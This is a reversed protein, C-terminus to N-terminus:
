FNQCTPGLLPLPLALFCPLNPSKESRALRTLPLGRGEPLPLASLMLRAWVSLPRPGRAASGRGRARAPGPRSSVRGRDRTALCVPSKPRSGHGALRPHSLCPPGPASGWGGNGRLQGQEGEIQSGGFSLPGRLGSLLGPGRARKREAAGRKGRGLVCVCM